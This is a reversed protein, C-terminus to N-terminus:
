RVASAAPRALALRAEDALQAIAEAALRSLMAVIAPMSGEPVPQELRASGSWLVSDDSTRVLRAELRVAAFVQRGRDVEELERIMGRWIYTQKHLSPPDYIAREVTIPRVGLVDETLLGLMTPLPMAWERNPYAGYETDGVRFVVARDGYLGPAVYPAISVSGQALRGATGDGDRIVSVSDAVGPFRLRYLERAPLRGRLFCSSSLVLLALVARRFLQRRVTGYTTDSV